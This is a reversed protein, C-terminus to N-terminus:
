HFVTVLCPQNEQECIDQSVIEWPRSPVPLSKMSEKTASRCYQVCIGCADCTDQIAKRMGQWFLVKRAMQTNSATGFHNAHIKSLMEKHMSQPVMVQMGKYIIGNQVSVEDRYNWYPCLLPQVEAKDNPWGQIIVHHLKKLTEDKSTKERIQRETNETLGPNRQQGLHEMKVCFADFSTVDVDVPHALPAQSLTDALHLTPGKKYTVKFRYRQHRMIMRQLRAPAKNLPKKM